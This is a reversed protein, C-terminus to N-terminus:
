TPQVTKCMMGKTFMLNAMIALSWNLYWAANFYVIGMRLLDNMFGFIFLAGVSYLINATSVWFIPEDVLSRSTAKAISHVALVSFAIIFGRSILAMENNFRGPVHYIAWDVVWICLFIAVLAAIVKQIRKNKFALWYVGGVFILELLLGLNALFTNNMHRRGMVFEAGVQAFSYICFLLLLKMAPSLVKVRAIGAATPILFSAGAALGM